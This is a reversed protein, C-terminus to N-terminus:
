KQNMTSKRLVDLIDKMEIPDSQIDPLRKDTVKFLFGQAQKRECPDSVVVSIYTTGTVGYIPELLILRDAGTGEIIIRNLPLLAPNSSMVDLRLEYPFHENDQVTLPIPPVPQSVMIERDSIPSIMPPTNPDRCTPPSSWIFVQGSEGASFVYELNSQWFANIARYQCDQTPTWGQGAEFHIPDEFRIAFVRDNDGFVYDVPRTSCFPMADWHSGDYHLILGNDGAAYINSANRGWICNLRDYWGTYNRHWSTGDYHLITGHGGVAYINDPSTGWIGCLPNQINTEITEWMEGNFHQIVGAEGTAYVNDSSTGWVSLLRQQTHSEMFQWQNGDFFLITGSDGVAIVHRYNLGWIARLSKDTPSEVQHFDPDDSVFFGCLADLTHRTSNPVSDFYSVPTDPAAVVTVSVPDSHYLNSDRAIVLFTYVGPETLCTLVNHYMGSQDDSYLTYSIDEIATSIDKFLPTPSPDFLKVKVHTIPFTGATASVSIPLSTAYQLQSMVNIGSVVPRDIQFIPGNMFTQRALNGDTSSYIGDGNDDIQASVMNIPDWVRKSKDFAQFLNNGSQLHYFLDKSFSLDNAPDVRYNANESSSLVVRNTGALLPLFAGSYPMDLIIIIPCQTLSQLADLSLDIQSASLQDYDNRMIFSANSESFGHIYIWLPMHPNLVDSFENSLVDLFDQSTPNIYDVWDMKELPPDPTLPDNKLTHMLACIEVPDFGRQILHDYVHKCVDFTSQPLQRQYQPFRTGVIIARGPPTEVLVELNNSESGPYLVNGPFYAKIQWIGPQSLKIDQIEFSQQNVLPVTRDEYTQDPSIIRINLTTNDIVTSIEGMIDISQNLKPVQQDPMMSLQIHCTSQEIIVPLSVGYQEQQCFIDDVDWINWTAQVTYSGSIWPMPQFFTEFYGDSLTKVRRQNIIHERYKLQIDIPEKSMPTSIFGSIGIPAYEHYIPRDSSLAIACEDKPIVHLQMYFLRQNQTQTDTVSLQFILVSPTYDDEVAVKLQIPAPLPIRSLEKNMFYGSVYFIPSIGTPPTTPDSGPWLCAMDIKGNFGSAGELTMSYIATDGQSVLAVTFHGNISYTTPTGPIAHVINSFLESPTEGLYSRIKYYYDHGERVNWDVFSAIILPLSICQYQGDITESRFVRYYVNEPKQITKWSLMVRNKYYTEAQLNDPNDPRETMQFITAPLIPTYDSYLTNPNNAHAYTVTRLKFYYTENIALNTFTYANDLKSTTVYRREYPGDPHIAYYIEYGGVNSSYPIPTWSLVLDQLTEGEVSKLGTPAITQTNIWSENSIHKGALFKEVKSNNVTLRNWRFDSANDALWDMQMIGEPIEGSFNNGSINIAKIHKLAFLSEPFTDGFYNHSIDLVRLLSLLSIDPITGSFLNHSLNLHQLQDLRTLEVPLIGNFQNSSIDLVVLKKLLTIRSMLQKELLNNSLNLQTLQNTEYLSKPITGSFQNNSLDLIKLNEFADFGEPITGDLQNFALCVEELHAARMFSDPITGMFQNHSLDLHILSTMQDIFDPLLGNLLNFSINMTTLHILNAFTVPVAGILKNRGMNLYQLQLMEGISQPISGYFQNSGLAMHTLRKLQSLEDPVTDEMKNESIDLYTLQDLQSINDPIPGTIQNKSLDLSQLQTLQYLNDPLDGNLANEPLALQIVNKKPVTVGYWYYENRFQNLWNIHWEWQTGQTQNFLDVLFAREEKPIISTVADPNDLVSIWNTYTIADSGGTGSVELKLTYIGPNDYTYVPSQRTSQHGDGFFWQWSDIKGISQDEFYVRFPTRGSVPILPMGMQAIPVIPPDRPDVWVICNDESYKNDDDYVKLWFVLSIPQNDSIAHPAIFLPSIANPSSLAVEPGKSQRWEFTLVTDDVDYSRSGDLMTKNGELVHIDEGANSVPPDNVPMVELVIVAENSMKPGLKSNDQAKFRIYDRGSYNTDACYTFLEKGADHTLKGHRPAATVYYTLSNQEIDLAMFMGEIEQDEYVKYLRNSAVPPDNITTVTYTFARNTDLGLPDTVKIIIIGVGSMEPANQLHLFKASGSGSLQIHDQPVLEPNDSVIRILLNDTPTERDIITLPIPAPPVDEDFTVPLIPFIQPADNAFVARITHDYDLHSFTYSTVSGISIQDVLVNEVHYNKDPIFHIVVPTDPPASLIGSPSIQGNAGAMTEIISQTTVSISSSFESYVINRNNIHPDTRTRIKFYYTNSSNLHTLTYSSETKDTTEALKRFTNDPSYGYFIEYAGTITDTEIPTWYFRVSDGSLVTATLNEPAITQTIEWNQGIHKQDIFTKVDQTEAYLANWRLDLNGSSLNTLRRITGPIKGILKNASLNLAYLAYDYAEWQPFQGSLHTDHVDIRLIRTNQALLWPFVNDFNNSGLDLTRINPLNTLDHLKGTFQNNHIDLQKLQCLKAIVSISGTFQNDHLNLHTLRNFQDFSQPLPGTFQNSSLDLFELRSLNGINDPLNGSFQNNSINVDQLFIMQTLRDSLSGYFANDQLWLVHLRTQYLQDSFGGSLSNHGLYLRKLDALDNLTSPLGGMLNHTNLQIESIPMVGNDCQIGHWTCPNDTELWQANNKWDSGNTITFFDKLAQQELTENAMQDNDMVTMQTTVTQGLFGATLTLQIPGDVIFDDVVSMDVAIWTYYRPIEASQPCKIESRDFSILQIEITQSYPVSTCAIAQFPPDSETVQSPVILAFNDPCSFQPILCTAQTQFSFLCVFFFITYSTTKTFL